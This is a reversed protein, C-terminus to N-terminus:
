KNSIDGSKEKLENKSIKVTLFLFENFDLYNQRYFLYMFYVHVSCSSCVFSKRNEHSSEPLEEKIHLM